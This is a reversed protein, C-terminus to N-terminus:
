QQGSVGVAGGPTPLLLFGGQPIGKASVDGGREGAKWEEAESKRLFEIKEPHSDDAIRSTDYIYFLHAGSSV